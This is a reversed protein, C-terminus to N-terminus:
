KIRIKSVVIYYFIKKRLELEVGGYEVTGTSSYQMHHLISWPYTKKVNEEFNKNLPATKPLVIRRLKKFLNQTFIFM